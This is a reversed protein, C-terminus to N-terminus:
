LNSAASTLYEKDQKSTSLEKSANAFPLSSPTFEPCHRAQKTLVTYPNVACHLDQCNNFYFCHRCPTSYFFYLQLSRGYLSIVIQQLLWVCIMGSVVPGMLFSIFIPIM